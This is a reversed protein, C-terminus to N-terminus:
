SATIHDSTLLSWTSLHVLLRATTVGTFYVILLHLTLRVAGLEAVILNFRNVIDLKLGGTDYSFSVRTM